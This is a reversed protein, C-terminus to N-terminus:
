QGFARIPPFTVSHPIMRGLSGALGDDCAQKARGPVIDQSKWAMMSECSMRGQLSLKKWATVCFRM